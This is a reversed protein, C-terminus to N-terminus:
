GPYEGNTPEDRTFADRQEREGDFFRSTEAHVSRCKECTVARWDNTMTAAVSFPKCLAMTQGTPRGYIPGYHIVDSRRSM